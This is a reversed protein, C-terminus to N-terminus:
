RLHLHYQIPTSGHHHYATTRRPPPQPQHKHPARWEHHHTIIISISLNTTQQQDVSLIRAYNSKTPLRAFSINSVRATRAESKMEIQGIWHVSQNHPNDSGDHEDQTCVFWLLKLSGGEVRQCIPSEFCRRSMNRSTLIKRCNHWSILTVENTSPNRWRIVDLSRCCIINGNNSVNSNSVRKSQM